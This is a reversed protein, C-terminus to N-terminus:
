GCTVLATDCKNHTSWCRVVTHAECMKGGEGFFSPSPKLTGGVHWAGSFFSSSVPGLEECRQRVRTRQQRGTELVRCGVMVSLRSQM